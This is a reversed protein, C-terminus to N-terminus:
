VIEQQKRAAIISIYFLQFAHYIMVPLLLIGAGGTGSFLVSAFVTGHVLSKKTGSFQLTIRDERNFELAKGIKGTLGFIVFFLLIVSVFLLAFIWPKVDSFTRNLFSKSFSEYVILLIISKDFWALKKLHRNVWKGLYKHFILGLLAPLLIQTVLQFIINWPSISASAKTLFLGMWLPTMVIGILGSLSANFIAGPVNGRAIGVMVVSSSVTSPLAALFFVGLWCIEWSAGKAFLYFPLVILPFLVFTTFQIALHMKWNSIGSRIKQTNLKLGYFFFIMFVGADIISGLNPSYNGMGVGPLMWALFIMLFLGGIFPDPLLRRFRFSAIYKL